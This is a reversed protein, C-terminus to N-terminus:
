AKFLVKQEELDIDYGLQKLKDQFAHKGSLIGLPLETKKVGVLQPTMIEYTEPNKLFGDQHIGSEHSFANKGVIAKNRPVRLGAYRAV